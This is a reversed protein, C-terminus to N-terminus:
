WLSEKLKDFSRLKIKSIDELYRFKLVEKILDIDYDTVKKQMFHDTLESKIDEEYLVDKNKLLDQIYEVKKIFNTIGQQFIVAQAKFDKAGLSKKLLFEEFDFQNITWPTALVFGKEDIALLNKIKFKRYDTRNVFKLPKKSEFLEPFLNRCVNNLLTQRKDSEEEVIIVVPIDLFLAHLVNLLAFDGIVSVIDNLDVDEDLTEKEKREVELQIDIKEYSRIRGKKDVFIVFQHQDCVIGRNIQVKVSGFEKNDFIYSPVKIKKSNECGEFPCKVELTIEDAM